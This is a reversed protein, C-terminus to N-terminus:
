ELTEFVAQLDAKLDDIDIGVSLRIL